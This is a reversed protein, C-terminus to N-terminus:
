SIVSRMPVVNGADAPRPACFEAWAEMLEARKALLEGRQYARETEDGVLHALAKEALERPFTTREAAWTRFTSRFGHLTERRGARRLAETVAGEAVHSRLSAGIFVFPNDDETPLSKLLAIAASSLPVTHPRRGKMRKAPVSWVAADFDIETWPAEIVESVRGETLILFRLALAAVSGDAALAAMVAAIDKFPVAAHHKVPSVKRPAPLAEKLFGKWRAPNDGSRWGRVTSFDLTREIRSRVRDATVVHKLWFTGADRPLPQELVRLVLTMDIASVDLGGIFPYAWRSLSSLFEAAHRANTWSKQHAEFYREAAQKFTVAKAAAAIRAAKDSRKRELPDVGGAIGRYQERAKDRAEALSLYSSRGKIASGLGMQRVKHDRQWRLSWAASGPGAVTLM